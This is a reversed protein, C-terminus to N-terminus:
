HMPNLDEVWKPINQNEIPLNDQNVDPDYQAILKGTAVERLECHYIGGHLYETRFAVQKGTDLFHWQFIVQLPRFRDIINGDKWIVLTLASGCCHNPSDSNYYVLWGVTQKDEALLISSCVNQDKEADPLIEKGDICVIRVNGLTDIAVRKVFISKRITISSTDTQGYSSIVNSIFLVAVAFCISKM